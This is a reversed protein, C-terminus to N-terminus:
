VCDVISAADNLRGLETSIVTTGLAVNLLESNQDRLTHTAHSERLSRRNNWLVSNITGEELPCDTIQSAHVIKKFYL